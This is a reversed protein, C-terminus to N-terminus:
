SEADAEDDAPLERQVALQTVLAKSIKELEKAGLDDSAVLRYTVGRPLRGRVL